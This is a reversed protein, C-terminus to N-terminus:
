DRIKKYIGRKKCAIARLIDDSVEDGVSYTFITVDLGSDMEGILELM